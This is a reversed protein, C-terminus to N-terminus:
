FLVNLYAGFEWLKIIIGLIGQISFYFNFIVRWVFFIEIQIIYNISVLYISFKLSSIFTLFCFNLSSFLFEFILRFM